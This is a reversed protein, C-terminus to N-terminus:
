SRDRAAHADDPLLSASRHDEPLNDMVIEAARRVEDAIVLGADRRHDIRAELDVLVEIQRAVQAYADRVDELGVIVGVVYGAVAAQGRRRARRDVNVTQHGGLERVLREIVAVLEREARQADLGQVRRTM